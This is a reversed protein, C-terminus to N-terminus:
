DVVEALIRRIDRRSFSQFAAEELTQRAATDAVLQKCAAVLGAGRACRVCAAMDDAIFTQEDVQAVVAKRNAMLYSVRVEEFIRSQEYVPVNLVLKARGILEDRAAGYLGCVYVCTLGEHCLHHFANVRESGTLGYILVDIDQREAQPIRQLIPAFGVPVVEARLAGLREWVPMNAPSYEWVEFRQAAIRMQPRIKDIPMNRAQEFNYVITDGPLQELVAPELMQAGFVINRGRTSLENLGYSVTHGLAQLGWEVTDIVEKYGHLGHLAEGPVIHALHFHM